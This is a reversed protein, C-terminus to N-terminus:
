PTMIVDLPHSFRQTVPPPLYDLWLAFGGTVSTDETVPFSRTGGDDFRVEAGAAGPARPLWYAASLRLRDHTAQLAAPSDGLLLYFFGAEDIGLVSGFEDPIRREISLRIAPVGQGTESDWQIRGSLDVDLSDMTERRAIRMTIAHREGSHTDDRSYAVGARVTDLPLRIVETALAPQDCVPHDVLFLALPRALLAAVEPALQVGIQTLREYPIEAEPDCGDPLTPLPVVDRLTLYFFDRSSMRIFRPHRTLRSNPLLLRSEYDRRSVVSYYEFGTHGPNMELHIGFDCGTHLMTEALAEGDIEDGIFYVLGGNPLRCLGSRVTLPSSPVGARQGRAWGWHGREDPDYVGHEILPRLNQRLGILRGPIRRWSGDWRGLGVHGNEFTAVTAAMRRPSVLEARNEIMGYVGHVTQFGGSFGAVLRDLDERPIMGTGLAATQPIPEELGAVIDLRLRAPDWATVHVAVWDRQPDVRVFSQFFVPQGDPAPTVTEVVPVWETEGPLLTSLFPEIPPPPVIARRQEEGSLVGFGDPSLETAPRTSIGAVEIAEPAGEIRRQQRRLTDRLDFAIREVVVMREAGIFPLDRVVDVAVHIPMPEVRITRRVSIGSPERADDTEDLDIRIQRATGLSLELYRPGDFAMSLDQPPFDFVYHTRGIGRLQGQHQLNSLRDFFRATPSWSATLEAPEGAFDLVVVSDYHGREYRAFAVRTGSSTLLREEVEGTLTLRRLYGIRIPVGNPAASLDFRYLDDAGDVGARMIVTSHQTAHPTTPAGWASSDLVLVDRTPDGVTLGWHHQAYEIAHARVRRDPDATQQHDGLEGAGPTVAAFLAAAAITLLAILPLQRLVFALCFVAGFRIV